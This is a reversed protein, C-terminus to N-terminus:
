YCYFIYILCYLLVQQRTDSKFEKLLNMVDEEIESM